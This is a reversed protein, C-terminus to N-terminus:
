WSQDYPEPVFQHVTEPLLLCTRGKFVGSPMTLEFCVEKGVARTIASSKFSTGDEFVVEVDGVISIIKVSEVSIRPHGM